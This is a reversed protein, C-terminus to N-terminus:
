RESNNSVAWYREFAPLTSVSELRREHSDMVPLQSSYASIHRWKWDRDVPMVAERTEVGIQGLAAHGSQTWLYPLDEWLLLDFDGRERWVELVAERLSLHDLNQALGHDGSARERSRQHAAHKMARLRSLVSEKLGAGPASPESEDDAPASVVSSTDIVAVGRGAGRIRKALRVALDFATPRAVGGACVPAAIVPRTGGQAHEDLWAGIAEKLEALDASRRSPTTYPGELHDLHRLVANTGEFAAVDEARRATILQTSDVAGCQREWDTTMAPDPLGAFATWVETNQHGRVLESASFLADDLHPSVMLLPQDPAVLCEVPDGGTGTTVGEARQEALELVEALGARFHEDDFQRARERCQEAVEERWQQSAGAIRRTESGLGDLDTWLGAGEVPEVVEKPGATAYVVPICGASMAEVTTIGFHEQTRPDADPGTGYGQAHWYISARSYLNRLEDFSANPHFTVPAAGARRRLDELAHQNEPSCAGVVHMSWGQEHLDTLRAFTEILADLRKHPVGPIYPEIRGVAIVTREKAVGPVAVSQCSPPLVVPEVGWRSRVHGATFESNACVVQYSRPFPEAPMLLRHASRTLAMYTKHVAGTYEVTLPHPFHCIFINARSAVGPVCNDFLCNVLVDPHLSKLQRTWREEETVDILAEPLRGVWEPVAELDLLEVGQSSVGFHADLWQRDVGGSHALTTRFGMDRLALATTVAYREAGGGSRLGPMFVVAREGVHRSRFPQSREEPQARMLGRGIQPAPSLHFLRVRAWGRWMGWALGARSLVAGWDAAGPRLAGRGAAVAVRAPDLMWRRGRLHPSRDWLNHRECLAMHWLGAVEHRGFVDSVDDSKRYVLRSNPAFAIGTGQQQVRIALDNDEVGRSLAADFGGVRLAMRRTMGFNGGLIIPWDTIVPPQLVADGPLERDLRAWIEELPGELDADTAHIAPGSFIEVQDLNHVGQEVWNRAVVDDADCFLLKDGSAAAMGVNRAYAAGAPGCADVLRIDLRDSWEEVLAAPNDTSNNDAVVVEFAPAGEQRSLAELQLGLTRTSDHVPVIVSVDVM